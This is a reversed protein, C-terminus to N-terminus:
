RGRCVRYVVGWPDLNSYKSVFEKWSEKVKRLRYKYENRKHKLHGTDRYKECLRNEVNCERMTHGFAFCKHCRLVNVFEKVKRSRWKVYVRRERVLVDRMGQSLENVGKRCTGNVIRASLKIEEDSVGADKLNKLYLADMLEENTMENEINFVIIKPGINKPAEVKPGLDGFKICERLKEVDSESAAEIARDSRRTKRVAKVRVNLIGVVNKMVRAKVEDSSMKVSDDKAKVVAYTKEKVPAAACVRGDQSSGGVCVSKGAVSVYSASASMMEKQTLMKECEDIRGILRENKAIMRMM